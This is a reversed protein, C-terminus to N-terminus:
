RLVLHILLCGIRFLIWAEGKQAALAQQLVSRDAFNKRSASQRGAFFRYMLQLLIIAIVVGACVICITTVHKGLFYLPTRLLQRM